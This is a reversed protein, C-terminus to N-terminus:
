SPEAATQAQRWASLLDKAGEALMMSALLQGTVRATARPGLRGSRYVVKGDLSGVFGKVLLEKECAWARIGVPAQCGASMARLFSREAELEDRSNADNLAACLDGLEGQRVEIALVGQGAAPLYWVEDLPCTLHDELGLRRLGAAALVLADVEGADLKALRTEVNGRIPVIELDPRKELLCSRRRPSSTGVRAGRPLQDLATLKDRTVLADRADLRKTFAGIALGDAIKTPVDKASHVALDIEKGLLAQELTTVFVGPEGMQAVPEEVADDGATAIERVEFRREPFKARLTALVEQAQALALRSARSGIIVPQNEAV